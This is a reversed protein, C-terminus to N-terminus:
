EILYQFETNFDWRCQVFKITVLCSLPCIPHMIMAEIFSAQIMFEISIPFQHGRPSLNPNLFLMKLELKRLQLCNRQFMESILFFDFISNLTNQFLGILIWENYLYGNIKAYSHVPYYIKGFLIPILYGTLSILIKHPWGKFFTQKFNDSLSIPPLPNKKWISTKSISFQYFIFIEM